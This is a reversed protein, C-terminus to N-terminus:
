KNYFIVRDGTEEDDTLIGIVQCVIDTLLGAADPITYMIPVGLMAIGLDIMEIEKTSIRLGSFFRTTPEFGYQAGVLFDFPLTIVHDPGADNYSVYWGLVYTRGKAQDPIGTEDLYYIIHKPIDGTVEYVLMEVFRSNIYQEFDSEHDGGQFLSLYDSYGASNGNYVIYPCILHIIQDRFPLHERLYAEGFKVIINGTFRIRNPAYICANIDTVKVEIVLKGDYSQIGAAIDELPLNSASEKASAVGASLLGGLVLALAMVASFRTRKEGLM